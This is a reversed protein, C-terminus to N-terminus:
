IGFSIGPQVAKREVGQMLRWKGLTKPLPELGIDDVIGLPESNEETGRKENTKGHKQQETKDPLHETEIRKEHRKKETRATAHGDTHGIRSHEDAALKFDEPTTRLYHKMAVQASHGVWETSAVVGFRRQIDIAASSRLGNFLPVWPTIGERILMKKLPTRWNKSKERLSKLVYETEGTIPRLDDLAQRIEPFLPVRRTKKTKPSHVTFRSEKEDIDSWKLLPLESQVRLGGFRAFIIVARWEASNLVALVSQIIPYDVYDKERPPISIPLEDDLFPNQLIYGAKVARNFVQRAVGIMKRSTSVALKGKGRQMSEFFDIADGNTISNVPRDEGFYKIAKKRARHWVQKSSQSGPRNEIYRIFWANITPVTKVPQPAIPEIAEPKQILGLNALYAIIRPRQQSAWLVNETSASLGGIKAGILAQIHNAASEASRKPIKGLALRRQIGQHDYFRVEARGNRVTATAM